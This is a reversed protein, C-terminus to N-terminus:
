GRPVSVQLVSGSVFSKELFMCREQSYKLCTHKAKNLGANGMLIQGHGEFFM